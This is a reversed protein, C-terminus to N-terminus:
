DIRRRPKADLVERLECRSRRSHPL